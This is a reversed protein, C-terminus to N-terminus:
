AEAATKLSSLAESPNNIPLPYSLLDQTIGGKNIHKSYLIELKDMMQDLTFSSNVLLKGQTGFERAIKKNEILFIIKEAMTKWDSGSFLFGNVGDIVTDAIGRPKRAVVALGAAMAELVAFGKGVSPMCFVDAVQLIEAVKDTGPLFIISKSLGAEETQKVLMDRYDDGEASGNGVILLKANPVKALVYPFWYILQEFKKEPIIRSVSVIIKDKDTFGLKERMRTRDITTQSFKNVDVGNLITMAKEKNLGFSVLRKSLWDSIMVVSDTTYNLTRAVSPFSGDPYGHATKIIPTGTFIKAVRAAFSGSTSQTHIVDVREKWSAFLITQITRLRALISTKRVPAFYHKVKKNLLNKMPGGSSIVTVRAGRRVFENAVSVTYREAGGYILQNAVFLISRTKENKM